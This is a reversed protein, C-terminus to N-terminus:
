REIKRHPAPADPKEQTLFFQDIRVGAEHYFLTLTNEGTKLTVHAKGGVWHWQNYTGDEGMMKDGGENVSVKLSNGQDPTWFTRAWLYYGGAKKVNFKYIVRGLRKAKNEDWPILLYAGGSAQGSKTVVKEFVPQLDVPNEAEILIKTDNARGRPALLALFGLLFLCCKM